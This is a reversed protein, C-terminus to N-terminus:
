PEALQSQLSAYRAQAFEKVDEKSWEIHDLPWALFPDDRVADAIQAWIQDIRAAIAAPHGEAEILAAVRLKYSARLSPDNQVLASLMSREFNQFMDRDPGDADGGWTSVLDWALIHFRPDDAPRCQFHNNALLDGAFGHSDSVVAELACYEVLMALNCVTSMSAPAHNLVDILAVVPSHDSMAVDPAPKWPDPVYTDPDSGQWLYPDVQANQM